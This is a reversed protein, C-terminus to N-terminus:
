EEVRVHSYIPVLLNYVLKAHGNDLRICGRSEATGITEAEKTGHIGFGAKGKAAGELGELAIWRSGLPYDPDGPYYVKQTDPDTWSTSKQKGDPKVRWLGTPTERGPKGLGVPFSRVFTNQLYIDMTFTSRSVKAHFPGNIVKLTQGARLAQPKQINNIQMLIEYPVKHKIGIIRLQDGRKVKYSSCLRDNPFLSKSFLWREALKSLQVKIFARQQVNQCMLLADNLRDRAEIVASPQSNVLEMADSIFATVKPDTQITAKSVLDILNHETEPESALTMIRQSSEVESEPKPLIASVVNLEGSEAPAGELSDNFAEVESGMESTIQIAEDENEGFPYYGFILIIIVALIFLASIIYIRNVNRFTRRNFWPFPYRAM